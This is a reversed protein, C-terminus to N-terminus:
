RGRLAEADRLDRVRVVGDLAAGPLALRHAGAGPALLLQDYAVREGSALRVSRAAVDVAAVPAAVRLEIDLADLRGAEPLLLEDSTTEGRLYAKSLAPRRYPREGEDGFLVVAGDYGADRLTCAASLGACGAGM